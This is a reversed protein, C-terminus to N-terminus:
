RGGGAAVARFLCWVWTVHGIPVDNNRTIRNLSNEVPECQQKGSNSNGKEVEPFCSHLIKQEKSTCSPNRIPNTLNQYPYNLKIWFSPTFLKQKVM